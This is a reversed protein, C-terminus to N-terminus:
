CSRFRRPFSLVERLTVGSSAYFDGDQMAKVIADGTLAAARVMVWGRGPTVNRRGHYNHSDDTAVGMLPAAGLEGLRITNAIDWLRETSAHQEDGVHRVGPHGNYVEFFDEELVYALDEATIGWGFNPHNLHALIPRGTKKELALVARLNRRMTDRVSKGKQPKILESLNVANIHVPKKQFGDTIEEAEILIFEGLQEFRPRIEELTRLRVQEVTAGDKNKENIRRILEDERFTRLYAELARRYLAGRSLSLREAIAEAEEFLPDPISIATKM